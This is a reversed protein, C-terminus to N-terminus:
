RRWRVNDIQYVAGSQYGSAPFIVLPTNIRTMDLGSHERNILAEIALSYTTWRGVVPPKIPVDGTSCPYICDIRMGYNSDDAGPKILRLDFEVWGDSWDSLDFAEAAQFFVVSDNTHHTAQIVIGRDAEGTDVLEIVVQGSAAYSQVDWPYAREDIFINFHDGLDEPNFSGSLPEAFLPERATTMQAAGPQSTGCGIGDAPSAACRYVRMYDVEMQVPFTTDQDPPGPWNGGVAVNLILHFPQDFPADEAGRMLKGDPGPFETFWVEQTQTAYHVDDVFWRMEGKEWELAYVHFDDAPNAGDPLNHSFGSHKNGPPQRGYHLTGYVTAAQSANNGHLNVAEVIDIEGGVPWPGYPSNTPLMWIAPWVGQGAPLKARIEFRGYTWDGNGKTRIRASTHPQTKEGASAADEADESVALGTHPERRAILHLKGDAVQINDPRDTYCQLENNGGGWCNEERDWGSGLAAGSFEDSWVLEWGRGEPHFSEPHFNEAEHMPQGHEEPAPTAQEQGCAALLLGATLAVFLLRGHHHTHDKM